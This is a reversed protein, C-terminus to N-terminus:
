ECFEFGFDGVVDVVLVEPRAIKAGIAAPLDWGLPGAGGPILYHRPKFIEQFQSSWIQNLGICTTFLTGEGFFENIEKFVRQPKIPVQDFDLRRAMDKRIDPIMKARTSPERKTRFSAWTM